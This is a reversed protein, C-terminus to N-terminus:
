TPLCRFFQLRDCARWLRSYLRTGVCGGFCERGMQELIPLSLHGQRLTGQMETDSIRSTMEQCWELFLPNNSRQRYCRAEFRAISIALRLAHKARAYPQSCLCRPGAYTRSLVNQFLPFSCLLFPSFLEPLNQPSPSNTLRALFRQDHCQCQPQRWCAVWGRVWFIEKTVGKPHDKLIVGQVQTPSVLWCQMQSSRKLMPMM